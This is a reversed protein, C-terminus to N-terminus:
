SCIVHTIPPANRAVRCGQIVQDAEFKRILSYFGEVCIIFLYTSLPDGQRIGRSPVIPGMLHDDHFVSYQVYTVCKMILNIWKGAFGM